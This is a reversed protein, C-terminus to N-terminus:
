HYCLHVDLFCLYVCKSTSDVIQDIQELPFSDKPCVKNLDTFDVSMHLTGNAKPVLMPNELWEPHWVM